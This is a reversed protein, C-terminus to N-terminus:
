AIRFSLIIIFVLNPLIHYSSNTTQKLKLVFSLVKCMKHTFVFYVRRSAHCMVVAQAFSSAYKRQVNEAVFRKDDRFAFCFSLLHWLIAHKLAMSSTWGGWRAARSLELATNSTKSSQSNLAPSHQLTRCHSVESELEFTVQVGGRPLSPLVSCAAAAIVVAVEVALLYLVRSEFRPRLM